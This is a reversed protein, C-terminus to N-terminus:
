KGRLFDALGLPKPPVGAAAGRGQLGHDSNHYRHCDTCGHRVGGGSIATKDSLTVKTGSPSHCAKCNEIGLIQVPEKEILQTGPPTYAAGTGPHCTACTAGRHSTHDFLAAQFWVTYNPLPAIKAFGGKAAPPSIDHCKACGADGTTLMPMAKSTLRNAEDRLTRAPTALPQDIMGGPGVPLALAPLDKGVMSRLYGANVESTLEDPQKRHPVDFGSIVLGSSAGDPARLPHCARCHAEFNIPLMTSGAARAPLVSRTPDGVADLALKLKDYGSTGNESDLKHCSACDLQILDSDQASATYRKVAAEGALQRLKAVTMAEQGGKVHAQGPNMHLSHSFKLKRDPPTTLPRFEPHDSVFNTVKAACKPSGNAQNATLDAHCHTCSTDALQVLSVNRGAHDHHCNSCQANFERGSATLNDNHAAGLHCKECTMAQWRERTNLISRVSIDSTSFGVHCAACDNEWAAHPNALPGHSFSYAVRNPAAVDAVAWFGALILAVAALLFRDRRM